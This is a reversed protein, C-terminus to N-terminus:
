DSLMKSIFSRFGNYITQKKVRCINDFNGWDNDKCTVALRIISSDGKGPIKIASMGISGAETPNYTEVITDTAFQIKQSAMSNIYIQALSFTKDCSAKNECSVYANKEAQKSEEKSLHDFWENGRVLRVFLIGRDSIGNVQTGNEFSVGLQSASWFLSGIFPPWGTNQFVSLNLSPAHCRVEVISNLEDHNPLRWNDAKGGFVKIVDNWKYDSANGKCNGGSYSQGEACIKWTLNTKTDLATGDTRNIEFRSTPTTEPMNSDCMQQTAPYIAPQTACGFLGISSFLITVISKKM